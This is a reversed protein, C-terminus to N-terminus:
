KKGKRRIVWATIAIWMAFMGVVYTLEGMATEDRKRLKHKLRRYRRQIDRIYSM